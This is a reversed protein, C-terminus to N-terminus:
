DNEETKLVTEIQMNDLLQNPVVLRRKTEVIYFVTKTLTQRVVRAKKTGFLYVEDDIKYDRNYFFIIGAVLSQIISKFFIAGAALLFWWFYNSVSSDILTKVLEVSKADM